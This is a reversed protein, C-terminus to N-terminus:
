KKLILTLFAGLVGLLVTGAGYYVITKVPWFQDTSVFRQDLRDSLGNIDKIANDNNEKLSNKIETLISHIGRIDQCILPIRSVDIFKKDQSFYADLAKIIEPETMNESNPIDM